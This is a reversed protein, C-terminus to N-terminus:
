NGNANEKKYQKLYSKVVRLAEKQCFAVGAECDNKDIINYINEGEKEKMDLLQKKYEELIEGHEYSETLFNIAAVFQYFKKDM